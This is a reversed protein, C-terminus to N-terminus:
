KFNIIKIIEEGYDEIKKPGFGRVNVLEKKSKPNLKIIEDLTENNFIFYPKVKIERIGFLNKIIAM